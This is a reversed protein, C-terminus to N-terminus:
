VGVPLRPTKRVLVTVADGVRIIQGLSTRDPMLNEGFLLKHDHQRYTALTKLPEKGREGTLPDLTTLVCRVCPKVGYFVADGMRVQAWTDEDHPWCLGEVVVNPRFRAMSLPEAGIRRNLEHLSAQTAVLVPFGDAFSVVREAADGELTHGSTITRRTTAPMYVLRCPQGLVRSFWADAEGFGAQAPVEDSDWISVELTEPGPDPTLPMTLVDTPQHRHWVALTNTILDIAVSLLAMQPTTRQTIFTGTHGNASPTVLMFRRDHRLGGAELVAEAVSVGALSKIPYLVIEALTLSM